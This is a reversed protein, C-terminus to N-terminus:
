KNFEKYREKINIDENFKFPYQKVYNFNESKM